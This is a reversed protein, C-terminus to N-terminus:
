HDIHIARVARDPWLFEQRISHELLELVLTNNPWEIVISGSDYVTESLMRKLHLCNWLLQNWICKWVCVNASLKMIMSKRHVKVCVRKCIIEYDNIESVTECVFTQVTSSYRSQFLKYHPCPKNKKIAHPLDIQQINVKDSIPRYPCGTNFQM